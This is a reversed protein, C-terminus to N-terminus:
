YEESDDDLDNYDESDGAYELFSRKTYADTESFEKLEKDGLLDSIVSMINDSCEQRDKAPIYQKMITYVEGLVEVDISM